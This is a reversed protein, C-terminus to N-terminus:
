LKRASKVRKNKLNASSCGCIANRKQQLRLRLAQSRKIRLSESLFKERGTPKFYGLEIAANLTQERDLVECIGLYYDRPRRAADGVTGRVKRVIEVLEPKSLRTFPSINPM